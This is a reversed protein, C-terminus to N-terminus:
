NKRETKLGQMTLPPYVEFYGPSSLRIQAWKSPAGFNVRGIADIDANAPLPNGDEFPATDFTKPVDAYRIEVTIDQEALYPVSVGLWKTLKDAHERSMWKSTWTGGHTNRENHLIYIQPDGQRAYLTRRDGNVIAEVAYDFLQSFKSPFVPESLQQARVYDYIIGQTTMTTNSKTRWSVRITKTHEDVVATTWSPDALDISDVLYQIKPSMLQRGTSRLIYLGHQWPFMLSGQPTEVIGRHSDIGHETSITSKVSNGSDGITWAFIAQPCGVIVQDGYERLANIASAQALSNFGGSMLEFNAAPFNDPHGADSWVLTSLAPEGPTSLVPAGGAIVRTKHATAVAFAPPANSYLWYFDDVFIEVAKDNNILTIRGINTWDGNVAGGVLTRTSRLASVTTWGTNTAAPSLTFKFYKTTSSGVHFRIELTGTQMERGGLAVACSVVLLDSDLFTDGGYPQPAQNFDVPRAVSSDVPDVFNVFSNTRHTLKLSGLGVRAGDTVKADVEFKNGSGAQHIWQEGATTGDLPSIPRSGFPFMYPTPELQGNWLFHQGYKFPADRGNSTGLWKDYVFSNIPAGQTLGRRVNVVQGDAYSHVQGTDRAILLNTVFELTRETADYVSYTFPALFNPSGAPWNVTSDLPTDKWVASLTRGSSLGTLLMDTADDYGGKPIQTRPSDRDIGREFGGIEEEDPVQNGIVPSLM